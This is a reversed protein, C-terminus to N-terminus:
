LSAACITFSINTNTDYGTRFCAVHDLLVTNATASRNYATPRRAGSL